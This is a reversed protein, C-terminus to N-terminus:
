QENRLQTIYRYHNPLYHTATYIQQKATSNIVPYYHPEGFGKLLDNWQCYPYAVDLEDEKTPYQKNKLREFFQKIEKSSRAAERAALWFPETRKSFAYHGLILTKIYTIKDRLFTNVQDANWKGALLENFAILTREAIHIATAEMPEIFGGSLGVAVINGVVLKDNYGLQMRLHKFDVVGSQKNLVDSAQDQDIFKSSYVYGNGIRTYTPIRFIWGADQATIRTFPNFEVEKNRYQTPGVVASDVLLENEYSTFTVDTQKILVKAFGSCDVFWTGTITHGGQTKIESCTNENVTTGVVKDSIHVVGRNTSYEQLLKALDSAVFHMAFFDQEGVVPCKNMLSVNKVMEPGFLEWDKENEVSLWFPSEAFERYLIGLKLGGNTKTLIEETTMGLTKLIHMTTPFTGEGVGIAPIDPSEILCMSLSPNHFKLFAAALWGATGGGVIVIDYNM